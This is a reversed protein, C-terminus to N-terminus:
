EAGLPRRASLRGCPGTLVMRMLALQSDTETKAMARAVLTRVTNFAIDLHGAIDRTRMGMAIAAVVRAEAPSLGYLESVAAPDITMDDPDTVFVAVAPSSATMMSGAFGIPSALIGYAPKGSPRSLRLYGGPDRQVDGNSTLAAHHLLAQLAADEQKHSARLSQGACCLGDQAVLMRAASASLFVIRKQADLHVVGVGVRDVSHRLADTEARVLALQQHLEAARQLHPVLRDLRAKHADSFERASSPRHCGLVLAGGRQLRAMAGLAYFADTRSRLFENYIVSQRWADDSVLESGLTAKGYLRRRLGEHAWLDHQLFTSVYTRMDDASNNHMALIDIADALPDHTLLTSTESELLRAAGAGVEVWPLRDCAADYLMGIFDLESLNSM